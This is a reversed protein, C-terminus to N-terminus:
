VAYSIGLHSSNLRTSKRDGHTVTREPELLDPLGAHPSSGLEVVLLQVRESRQALFHASIEQRFAGRVFCGSLQALNGRDTPNRLRETRPLTDTLSNPGTHQPVSDGM